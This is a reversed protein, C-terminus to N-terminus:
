VFAFGFLAIVQVGFSANSFGAEMAVQRQMAYYIAESQHQFQQLIRQVGSSLRLENERRLMREMVESSAALNRDPTKGTNILCMVFGSQISIQSSHTLVLHVSPTPTRAAMVGLM